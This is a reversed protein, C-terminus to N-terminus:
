PLVNSKMGREATREQADATNSPQSGRGHTSFCQLTSVDYEVQERKNWYSDVGNLSGPDCNNPLTM